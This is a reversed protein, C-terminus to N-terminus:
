RIGLIWLLGGLRISKFTGHNDTVVTVEFVHFYLNDWVKESGSSDLILNFNANQAQDPVALSDASLHRSDVKVTVEFHNRDGSVDPHREPSMRNSPAWSPWSKMRRLQSDAHAPEQSGKGFYPHYQHHAGQYRRRTSEAILGNVRSIADLNQCQNSTGENKGENINLTIRIQVECRMNLGPDWIQDELGRIPGVHQNGESECIKSSTSAAKEVIIRRAKSESTKDNHQEVIGDCPDIDPLAVGPTTDGLRETSEQGTVSVESFAAEPERRTKQERELARRMKRSLRKEKGARAVILKGEMSDVIQCVPKPTKPAMCNREKMADRKSQQARTTDAEPLIYQNQEGKSPKFGAALHPKSMTISTPVNTSCVLSTDLSGNGPGTPPRFNPRPPLHTPIANCSKASQSDNQLETHLQSDHHATAPKIEMAAVAALNCTGSTHSAASQLHASASKSSTVFQNDETQLNRGTYRLSSPVDELNCNSTNRRNSTENGLEPINASEHNHQSQPRGEDRMIDKFSVDGPEDIRNMTSRSNATQGTPTSRKLITHNDDKTAETESKQAQAVIGEPFICQNVGGKSPKSGIASPVKLMPPPTSTTLSIELSRNALGKPPQPKMPLHTPNVDRVNGSHGDDRRLDTYLHSKHPAVEPKTEKAAMANLDCPGVTRSAPRQFYASSLTLASKSSAVFQNDETELSLGTYRWSSPLDKSERNSNHGGSTEDNFNPGSASQRSQPRHKSETEGKMSIKCPSDLFGMERMKASPQVPSHKLSFLSESVKSQPHHGVASPKLQESKEAVTQMSHTLNRGHKRWEDLTPWPKGTEWDHQNDMEALFHEVSVRYCLAYLEFDNETMFLRIDQGWTPCNLDIKHIVLSHSAERKRRQLAAQLQSFISSDIRVGLNGNSIHVAWTQRLLRELLEFEYRFTKEYQDCTVELAHSPGLDVNLSSKLIRLARRKRSILAPSRTLEFSPISTCIANRMNVPFEEDNHFTGYSFPGDFPHLKMQLTSYEEDSRRLQKKRTNTRSIPLGNLSSCTHRERSSPAFLEQHRTM